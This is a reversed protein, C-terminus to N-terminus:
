ALFTWLVMAAVVVLGAGAWLMARRSVPREDPDEVEPPLVLPKPAYIGVFSSAVTALHAGAEDRSAFYRSGSEVSRGDDAIVHWRWRGTPGFGDKGHEYDERLEIKM